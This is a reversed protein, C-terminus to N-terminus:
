KRLRNFTKSDDPPRRASLDYHSLVANEAVEIHALTPVVLTCAFFDELKAPEPVRGTEIKLAFSELEKLRSVFFWGQKEAEEKLFLQVEAALRWGGTGSMAKPM